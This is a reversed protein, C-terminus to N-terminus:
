VFTEEAASVESPEERRRVVRALCVRLFFSYLSVRLEKDIFWCLPVIGSSSAAILTIIQNLEVGPVCMPSNCLSLLFSVCQFPFWMITFTLNVVCLAVLDGTKTHLDTPASVITSTGRTEHVRDSSTAPKPYHSYSNRVSPRESVITNVGIGDDELQLWQLLLKFSLCTIIALPIFYTLVPCMIGAIATIIVFCQNPLEPYPIRGVTWMPIVIVSGLLWPLLIVVYKSIRRVFVSYFSSHSSTMLKDISLQILIIFSVFPLLIDTVVWVRCLTEGLGWGHLIHYVTLPLVFVGIIVNSVSFNVIQSNYLHYRTFRNQVCALIVLVNIILTWFALVVSFTAAHRHLNSIFDENMKQGYDYLYVGEETGNGYSLNYMQHDFILPSGQEVTPNDLPVGTM